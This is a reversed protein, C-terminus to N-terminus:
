ALSVGNLRVDVTTVGNGAVSHASGVIKNSAATTTIKKATDDWYLKVGIAIVDATVKPLNYVGELAFNVAEGIAGDKTAVGFLDGILRGDGSVCATGALTHEIMEGPKVFNKM